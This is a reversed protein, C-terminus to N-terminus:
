SRPAHPAGLAAFVDPDRMMRLGQIGPFFAYLTGLTRVFPAFGQVSVQKDADSQPIDFRATKDSHHGILPDKARGRNPVGMPNADAWESLLHEFQDELSACFFLGLLGREVPAATSCAEETADWVPGYPIGRRVVPRRRTPVVADTRPTMRRIHAGFPCGVGDTDQSFNFSDLGQPPPAHPSAHHLAPTTKEDPSVVQGNRWRGLLKARLYETSKGIEDANKSIFKEFASVDQRLPRFAGFSANKFFSAIKASQEQALVDSLDPRETALQWANFGEDNAYGLLVEGPQHADEPSTPTAGRIRIKSIGDLMGFHVRRAKRAEPTHELHQGDFANRWGADTFAGNALTELAAQTSVLAAPTDAHWTLLVHATHLEFLPNWFTAANSGTDALHAAARPYAGQAFARAKNQFVAQYRPQLGLAVLGNFTLGLGVPCQHETLRQSVHTRHHEATTLWHDHALQVLFDKALRADIVTLVVYRSCHLDYGQLVLKQIDHLALAPQPTAPANM